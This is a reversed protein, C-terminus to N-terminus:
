ENHMIEEIEHIYHPADILIPEKEQEMLWQKPDPCYIQQYPKVAGGFEPVQNIYTYHNEGENIKALETLMKSLIEELSNGRFKPFNILYNTLESKMEKLYRNKFFYVDKFQLIEETKFNMIVEKNFPFVVVDLNQVFEEITQCKKLQLAKEFDEPNIKANELIQYFEAIHQQEQSDSLASLTRKSM